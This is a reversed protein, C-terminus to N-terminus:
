SDVFTRWFITGATANAVKRFLQDKVPRASVLLLGWNLQCRTPEKNITYYDYNSRRKVEIMLCVLGVGMVYLLLGRLNRTLM